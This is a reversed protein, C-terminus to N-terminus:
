RFVILLPRGSEKARALGRDFDNYIWYDDGVYKERDDQVLQERKQQAHSTPAIVVLCAALAVGRTMWAVMKIGRGTRKGIPTWLDM